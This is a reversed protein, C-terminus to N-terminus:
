QGSISIPRWRYVETMFAKLEPLVDEDKYTPVLADSTLISAM